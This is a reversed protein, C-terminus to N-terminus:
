EDPEPAPLMEIRIATDYLNEAVEFPDLAIIFHTDDSSSIRVLWRDAQWLLTRIQGGVTPMGKILWGAAPYNHFPEIFHEDAKEIAAIEEEFASAAAALDDFRQIAIHTGHGVGLVCSLSYTPDDLWFTFSPHPMNCLTRAVEHLLQQEPPVPPLGTVIWGTASDEWLYNTRTLGDDLTLDLTIGFYQRNALLRLLEAMEIVDL